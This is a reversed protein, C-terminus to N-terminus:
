VLSNSRGRTASVSLWRTGPSRCFWRGHRSRNALAYRAVVVMAASNEREGNAGNAPLPALSRPEHAVVRRSRALNWTSAEEGRGEGGFSSLSHRGLWPPLSSIRGLCWPFKLDWAGPSM